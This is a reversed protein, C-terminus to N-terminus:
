EKQKAKFPTESLIASCIKLASDVRDYLVAGVFGGLIVGGPTNGKKTLKNQIEMLSGADNDMIAREIAQKNELLDKLFEPQAKPDREIIARASSCFETFIMRGAEQQSLHEILMRIKARSLFPLTAFVKTQSIAQAIEKLKEKDVRLQNPDQIVLSAVYGVKTSVLEPLNKIKDIKEQLAPTM